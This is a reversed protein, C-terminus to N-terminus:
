LTETSMSPYMRMCIYTYGTNVFRVELIETDADYGVLDIMSSDIKQYEMTRLIEGWLIAFYKGCGCVALRGFLLTKLGFM